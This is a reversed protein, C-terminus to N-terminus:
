ASRRQLRAPIDASHRDPGIPPLLLAGVSLLGLEAMVASAEDLEKDTEGGSDACVVARIQLQAALMALVHNSRSDFLAPGSLLVFDYHGAWDMMATLGQRKATAFLDLDAPRGPIVDLGPTQTRSVSAAPEVKGALVDGLTPHDAPLEFAAAFELSSPACEIMLVRLGGKVLAQGALLCAFPANRSDNGVPLFVLPRGGSTEVLDAAMQRVSQRFGASLMSWWAMTLLTEDPKEALGSAPLAAIVPLKEAVVVADPAAAVAAPDPAPEKRTRAFPRVIKGRPQLDARFRDWFVCGAGAFFLGLALGAAVMPMKKPFYPTTPMEALSVLRAGGNLSRRESELESARQYLQTYLQRKAEVDRVMGEISAEHSRADAANDKAKATQAKLATVLSSATEYDKRANASIRDIEATLQKQLLEMSAELMRRQPHRPGLVTNSAALQNGITAMQQRLDAVTRNELAMTSADQGNRTDKIADLRAQAQAKAQEAAALQQSVSTLGESSIAATSGQVLGNQQRFAEIKALSDRIETDLNAIEQWLYKAAVERSNSQSSRQDDLYATVLANALTMATAPLASNYSISLVRSRGVAAVAYHQAVTDALLQSDAPLTACRAGANRCEAIVEDYVGPQALAIKLLRSSRVIMIQSELDAPDGQKQAWVDSTRTAPDDEAVIVSGTALYRPPIVITAVVSLLVVTALIALALLRHRWITAVIGSREVSAPADISRDEAMDRRDIM